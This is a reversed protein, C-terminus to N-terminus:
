HSVVPQEEDLDYLPGSPKSGYYSYYMIYLYSIMPVIYAVAMSDFHESILGMVPPFLAGGIIAMVILSGGLKTNPGLGKLGLAFITPFMLSMFFSTMFVAILGVWGPFVIAILVLFVNAISYLGMLRNPKIYKMLFTAVFRAIGFTILTGTLLGGAIKEPQNTYDQIYQIFFSWTGVQAGVYFFQALVGKTFHPFKFLNSLKGGSAGKEEDPIIPFKTRIMLIAWLIVVTGYVMYPKTVRMIEHKLYPEYEGAAKMTQIQEDSLEIGSFIFVTGVIVGIVV